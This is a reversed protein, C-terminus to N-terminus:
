KESVGGVVKVKMPRGSENRLDIKGQTKGTNHMLRQGASRWSLASFLTLSNTIMQWKCTVGIRTNFTRISCRRERYEKREKRANEGQREVQRESVSHIITYVM